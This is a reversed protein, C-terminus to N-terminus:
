PCGPRRGPSPRRWRAVAWCGGAITREQPFVSGLQRQDVFNGLLRLLRASVAGHWTGPPERVVLRGRVLEVQKNPPYPRKLEAATALSSVSMSDFM